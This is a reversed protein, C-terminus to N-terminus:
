CVIKDSQSVTISNLQAEIIERESVGWFGSLLIVKDISIQRAGHEYNYWTSVAVGMAEAVEAATKGSQTRLDKLTM